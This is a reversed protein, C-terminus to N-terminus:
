DEANTKSQAASREEGAEKARREDDDKIKKKELNTLFTREETAAQKKYLCYTKLVDQYSQEPVGLYSLGKPDLEIDEIETVEIFANQASEM